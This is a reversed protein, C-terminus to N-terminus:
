NAAAAKGAVQGFVLADTLMAGGRNLGCSIEGAAYLGKIPKGDWSLVQKEANTKLGGKTNSGGAFLPIAYFVSGELPKLSKQARGFDDDKGAAAMENFRKLTAALKEADMRGANEKTKAIEKALGEISDATLIWGKKLADSNDPAGYDVFGYGVTSRTLNALPRTKFIKEEFIQWAPMNDYTMTDLNQEAAKEYVSNNTIGGMIKNEAIFRDGLSNVVFTGPAGVGVTTVGIRMGDHYVPPAWIMRAACSSAKSLAAGAKLGMRIGDGENFPTGYFAFNEVAPGPLFAKRMEKGYEYGGSALIVAKKARIRLEKGSKNVVVGIVDGNDATILSVAPADGLVKILASRDNIGKELARWLAEGEAAESKPGNYTSVKPMRKPYMLHYSAYSSTKAGPFNVYQAPGSFKQGNLEPDLSQLWDMLQPTYEVWHEAMANSLDDEEGVSPNGDYKASFLARFYKRLEEKNGDKDPCHVWGGSMRTNSRLTSLPQKEVIIVSAKQDAAAIAAAAGAGGLGVVVIDTTEDFKEPKAAAHSATMACVAATSGFIFNRRSFTPM